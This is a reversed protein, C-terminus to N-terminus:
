CTCVWPKRVFKVADRLSTDGVSRITVLREAVDYARDRGCDDHSPCPMAVAAKIQFTAGPALLPTTYTGAEVAATINTSKRLFKVVYGTTLGNADVTFRDSVSGDNQISIKFVVVRPDEYAGYSLYDIHNRKQNKGTANYVGDGVLSPDCNHWAPINSCKKSIRADPRYTADPTGAAVSAGFAHALVLASTAVLTLRTIRIM